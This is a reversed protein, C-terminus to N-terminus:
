LAFRAIATNTAAIETEIASLKRTNENRVTEPVNAYAPSNMKALLSQKQADLTQLKAGLRKTEIAAIDVIGNLDVFVDCSPSLVNVACGNVPAPANLQLTVSTAFGLSTMVGNLPLLIGFLEETKANVYVNITHKRPTVNYSSLIGRISCAVDQAHKMETEVQLNAWSSFESFIPFPSVMISPIACSPRRLLRQYLEETLFPMFPHLLRLGVDLCTYLTERTAAHEGGDSFVCKSMELYNDCLDYMWFDYCATTATSFSLTELGQNVNQVFRSLRSLIWQDIKTAGPHIETKGAPQFGPGLNKLAFRTANWIKNCFARYGELRKIDLNINRGQVTYACLGFRLADTGCESIGKPFDAKQGEKALEIERPDLNGTLLKDHLGQLPIGEIVDIPDVVNGKTKSMKRGHADKVMPHFYVQNFPLQGLFFQAMFVMRSVWFFIIDGGTELLTTPFFKDLDPTKEPWGFVSFPFLSSSFWTDLVDPDQELVLNEAPVGFKKVAAALAEDYTRGAVWHDGRTSDPTQGGKVTVLYAPIRHGWYLQRSICWDKIGKMWNDWNKEYKINQPFLVLDGRVRADLARAAMEQCDVWWMSKLRPEIIDDTKACRKLPMPNPKMGRYLGLEELKKLVANRADFRMMGQFLPGGVETIAGSDTFLEHIPLNHRLGCEYDTQDHGPTVKVAGTGAEIDVFNDTIIPIKTGQIPHVLRKGHLHTYRKDNPHVAVAADALMTEPRTTAVVLEEDSGEVKYAFEWMAGFRYTNEGHGPVRLRRVEKLDLDDVEEDSIASNLACCWNVIRKARYILGADFLRIFAELVARTLNKDMTFAERSWDLSSGMRKMQGVITERYSDKWKWAEAVFAERGLDNRTLGRDRWLRKEVVAQTSIGAHDTGPVWLTTHGLMRHWRVLADELSNAMAHGLHLSGTVNPPPLVIVFKQNDEPHNGYEPKFFGQKEWWSYWAAEVAPPNYEEEIEKSLDKKEGAPTTNIFEQKLRIEKEKKKKNDKKDKQMQQSM